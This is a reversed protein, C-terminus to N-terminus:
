PSITRVIHGQPDIVYMPERRLHLGCLPKPEAQSHPALRGMLHNDRLDFDFDRDIDEQRGRLHDDGSM